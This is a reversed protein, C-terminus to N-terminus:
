LRPRVLARVPAADLGEIRLPLALLEHWGSKVHRLDLNELIFAGGKFLANHTELGKSERHDVSPADVGLLKLGRALLAGVTDESLVPWTQPFAGLAITCSTRLLLRPIAGAPPLILTDITLAGSRGSVDCVWADGLFAELPLAESAAGGEVVHLPADAHTGVHPSM